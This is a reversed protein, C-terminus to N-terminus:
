GKDYCYILKGPFKFGVIWKHNNNNNHNNQNFVTRMYFMLKFHVSHDATQIIKSNSTSQTDLM